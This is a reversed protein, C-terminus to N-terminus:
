ADEPLFTNVRYQIYFEKGALHPLSNRLCTFEQGRQCRQQELDQINEEGECRDKKGRREIKHRKSLVEMPTM